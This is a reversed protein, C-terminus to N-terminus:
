PLAADLEAEAAEDFTPASPAEDRVVPLVIDGCVLREVRYANYSQGAKLPVAIFSGWVQIRQGVLRAEYDAIEEALEGTAQCIVGSPSGDKLRFGLFAGDPSQRVFWDTTVKSQKEATGILGDRRVEGTEHDVRAPDPDAARHDEMDQTFLASAGTARLTADIHARKEAMKALTVDLDWPEPNEVQGADQGVIAQDATLYKAGCGDKKKWCVWGGGYQESGRIIAAKGCKPCTREAQRYRYRVEWSNAAGYGVAVIPGDLDGLHLDCRTLYGIAPASAGDGTTRQPAFDAALSYALCLKEAGPKLLTPKKTGPIVGYDVDPKMLARQIRAIRDAGRELAALRREFEDDALDAIALAGTAAIGQSPRVIVARDVAENEIIDTM